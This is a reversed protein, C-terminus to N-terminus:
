LIRVLNHGVSFKGPPIYLNSGQHAGHAFIKMSHSSNFEFTNNGYLVPSTEKYILRCTRMLCSDIDLIPHHNSAVITKYGLLDHADTIYESSVLVHHYIMDRVEAPLKTFLPCRAVARHLDETGSRSQNEALSTDAMGSQKPSKSTPKICETDTPRATPPGVSCSFNFYSGISLAFSFHMPM